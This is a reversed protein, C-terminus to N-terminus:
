GSADGHAEDRHFLVLGRFVTPELPRDGITAGCELCRGMFRGEHDVTLIIELAAPTDM